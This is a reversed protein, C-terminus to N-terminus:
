KNWLRVRLYYALKDTFEKRKSRSIPLKENKLVLMDGEIGQAYKLNVLYCSNCYVFQEAPLNNKMEDLSGRIEVTDNVLHFTM